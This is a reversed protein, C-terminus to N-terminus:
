RAARLLGFFFYFGLIATVVGYLRLGCTGSQRVNADPAIPPGFRAFFRGFGSVVLDPRIACVLGFLGFLLVGVIAFPGADANFTIFPAQSNM